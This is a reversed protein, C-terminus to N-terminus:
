RLPVDLDLVRENPHKASWETLQQLEMYQLRREHFCIRVKCRLLRNKGSRYPSLDGLKKLRLEYAQGQNLYTISPECLKTANSTAAALVYQFTDAPEDVELGGGGVMTGHLAYAVASATAAESSDVNAGQTNVNSLAQQHNLLPNNTANVKQAQINSSGATNGPSTSGVLTMLDTHPLVLSEASSQLPLIVKHTKATPTKHPSQEFTPAARQNHHTVAHKKNVSGAHSLSPKAPVSAGALSLNPHSGSLNVIHPYGINNSSTSGGGSNNSHNAQQQLQQLIQSVASNPSYMHGTAATSESSSERSVSGIFSIKPAPSSETRGAHAHSGSSEPLHAEDNSLDLAELNKAAASAAKQNRRSNSSNTRSVGGGGKNGTGADTTSRAATTLIPSQNASNPEEKFYLVPNISSSEKAAGGAGIPSPSLVEQKLFHGSSISLNPLALLAESMSYSSANIDVGLGSFSGDFDAALNEDIESMLAHPNVLSLSINNSSHRNRNNSSSRNHGVGGTPSLSPNNHHSNSSPNAPNTSPIAHTSM